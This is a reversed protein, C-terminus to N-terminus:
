TTSIVENLRDDTLISNRSIRRVEHRLALREKKCESGTCTSGSAERKWSPAICPRNSEKAATSSCEQKVRAKRRRNLGGSGTLFFSTDRGENEFRKKKKPRYRSGIKSTNNALLLREAFWLIQEKPRRKM